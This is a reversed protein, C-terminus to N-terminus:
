GKAPPATLQVFVDELSGRETRMERMAWGAGSVRAFVEPGPDVGTECACEVRIWGDATQAATISIVGRVQTLQAKISELPGRVEAVLRGGGKIMGLVDSTRGSALLRGGNIILVRDCVAEVETLIHSSLLVTHRGALGQIMGRVQRLQNPDLGLTPEDLILLEPQSLLADAFGVRQRYGKSLRGIVRRGVEGLGCSGLTEEMRVRLKKGHLGKLRGRYALYETVRMDNYLPADEPLYGIRRRGEVSDTMMDFGCVRVRGSTPSLYGSLIRLTTTKGAGNPGLVGVIEGREVSFSIDSVATVPGYRKELNEVQVVM